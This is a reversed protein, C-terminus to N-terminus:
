LVMRRTSQKETFRISDFYDLLPLIFKRTTHMADRLDTSSFPKNGAISRVRAKLAELQRPTYFVVESLQVVEGSRIALRLIEEVAQRPIGLSQAIFQPSPTSVPQQELAEIVRDLLARQRPTLELRFEKLSIGAPQLDIKGDRALQGLIRELPKGQWNLGAADVARDPTIAADTPNQAHLEQLAHILREVGSELGSPSIWLGAFGLLKRKSLLDEFLDGLEQPTKHTFRCIRETSVGNPDRAVMELITTELEIEM